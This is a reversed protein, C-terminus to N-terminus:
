RSRVLVTNGLILSDNLVRWPMIVAEADMRKDNPNDMSIRDPETRFGMLGIGYNSYGNFAPDIYQAGEIDGCKTFIIHHAHGTDSYLYYKGAIFKSNVLHGYEDNNSCLGADYKIFDIVKSDQHVRLVTDMENIVFEATDIIRKSEYSQETVRFILKDILPEFSVSSSDVSRDVDWFHNKEIHHFLGRVILIDHESSYSIYNMKELMYELLKPTLGADISDEYEKLIWRGRLADRMSKEDKFIFKDSKQATSNLCGSLCFVSSISLLFGIFANPWKSM